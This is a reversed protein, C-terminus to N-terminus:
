RCDPHRCRRSRWSTAWSLKLDAINAWSAQGSCQWLRVLLIKLPCFMDSFPRVRAEPGSLCRLGSCPWSTWCSDRGTGPTRGLSASPRQRTGPSCPCAEWWLACTPQRWRCAATVISSAQEVSSRTVQYCKCNSSRIDISMLCSVCTHCTGDHESASWSTQSVYGM